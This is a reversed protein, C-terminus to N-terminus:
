PRAGFRRERRYYSELAKDLDEESFDPWYVDTVYLESYASQWLWFNSLRQEGATRIILDPDPLSPYYLYERFKEEDLSVSLQDRDESTLMQRIARIIENRGGYNLCIVFNMKIQDPQLSAVEDCIDRTKKSLANLDGAFDIKVQKEIIEHGYKEFFEPILKSLASIEAPSRKWNETSFAYVSLYPIGKELAHYTVERLNESGARHGESRNLGRAKAWRGNGDMIIALHQLDKKPM